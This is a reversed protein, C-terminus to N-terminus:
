HDNEYFACQRPDGTVCWYVNQPSKEWKQNSLFKAPYINRSTYEVNYSRPDPDQRYYCVSSAPSRAQYFYYTGDPMQATLPNIKFHTDRFDCRRGVCHIEHQCYIYEHASVGFSAVLLVVTLIIKKM